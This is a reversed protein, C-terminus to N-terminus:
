KAAGNMAGNTEPNGGPNVGMLASVKNMDDGRQTRGPSSTRNYNRTTEQPMGPGGGGGEGGTAQPPPEQITVIESLDPSDLYQAAKQLYANVDFAVGQQQLLQMMPMVTQQVIQNLAALRQKPTQQQMSYPDVRIDMDEFRVQQRDQPAIRIEATSSKMETQHYSRMVGIPDHHYYWCM